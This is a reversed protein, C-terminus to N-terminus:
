KTQSVLFKKYDGVGYLATGGKIVLPIFIDKYQKFKELGQISYYKRELNGVVLFNLKKTMMLEYVKLPDKSNFIYDIDRKRKNIDQWSRGRLFVHNDWGLYTPVGTHMAIRTSQHDFSRSYREVVVPTGVVNSKIWSIIAFDGPRTKELFSSGKLGTTRGGFPRHNTVAKMNFLTGLLSANVVVLTVLAFPILANRRLYFKFYRLSIVATIGGWLYVNTFVKFITNVRDNFVFNEAFLGILLSCMLFRFGHSQLIVRWKLAKRHLFFVPFIMLFGVLWWLGHHQFHSYLTNSPSEWPGWKSKVGGMLTAIMPSFLLLGFLHVSLFSVWARPVKWLRYTLLFFLTNFLSYIIFDWGNVGILVGYALTHFIFFLVQKKPNFDGWVNKLGYVLCTLLLVTFPYSMVHPHLDGFLFSWSPYEAFALNKFVRTSSWFYYIDFKAEGFVIEWFAKFNSALPILFTGGLALWRKKCLFLLLSYLCSGMLAPITALSLAYGVEGKVGAMKALSAFFTYGWYYYKMPKGAFWPDMLPLESNRLSFNFISFDMPKEGWYLEPHLSYLILYLCFLFLFAFEVKIMHRGYFHMLDVLDNEKKVILHIGLMMVLLCFSLSPGSLTLINLNTGLWNIYFLVILALLRSLGYGGDKLGSFAEKTVPFFLIGLMSVLYYWFVVGSFEIANLKFFLLNFLLLFPWPVLSLFFARLIM